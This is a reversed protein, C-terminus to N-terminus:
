HVRIVTYFVRRRKYVGISTSVIDELYHFNSKSTFDLARLSIEEFSGRFIIEGRCGVTDSHFEKSISKARQDAMKQDESTYSLSMIGNRNRVANIARFLQDRKGSDTKAIFNKDYEVGFEDTYQANAAINIMALILLLMLRSNWTNMTLPNRQLGASM